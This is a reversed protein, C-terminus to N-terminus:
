DTRLQLLEKYCNKKIESTHAIQHQALALLRAKEGMERSEVPHDLLYKVAETLGNLDNEKILYGTEGNKVLEYHWEINYSVVPIGAACSEILSFGGMLCLAMFSKRRISIVINRPQFGVFYVISSIGYEQSLAKLKDHELGDGVFLVAFDKRTESIRHVMEIADYVYNDKALRGVFSIVKKDQPIGFRGLIDENKQSYFEKMSIGHPIVRIQTPKGGKKLIDPILHDRIPM